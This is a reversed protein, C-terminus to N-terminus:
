EGRLERLKQELEEIEQMRKLEDTDVEKYELLNLIINIKDEIYQNQKEIRRTTNNILRYNRQIEAIIKDTDIEVNSAIYKTLDVKVAREEVKKELKELSM